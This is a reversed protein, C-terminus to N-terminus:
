KWKISYSGSSTKTKSEVKLYYTGEPFAATTGFTTAPYKLVYKKKYIASAEGDIVIPSKNIKKGSANCIYIQLNKGNNQLMHSQITISLKQKKTVKLKYWSVTTTGAPVLTKIYKDKALTRARGRSDGNTSSIFDIQYKLNNITTTGSITNKPKWMKIYYFRKSQVGIGSLAKKNMLINKSVAKKKSNLYKVTIGDDTDCMFHLIGPQSVKVKLLIPNKEKNFSANTFIYNYKKAYKLTGFEKSVAKYSIKYTVGETGKIRLYYIKNNEVKHLVTKNHPIAVDSAIIEKNEDCIDIVLEKKNSTKASIQLYSVKAAKIQYYNYDEAGAYTGQATKGSKLTYEQAHVNVCPLFLLCLFFLIAKYKM